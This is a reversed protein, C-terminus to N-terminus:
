AARRRRRSPSSSASSFLPTTEHTLEPFRLGFIFSAVCLADGAHDDPCPWHRDRCGQMIAKKIAKSGSPLFDGLMKSRAQQESIEECPLGADSVAMKVVGIMAGVSLVVDPAAKRSVFGRAVGVLDPKQERIIRAARDYIHRLVPGLDDIGSGRPVALSGSAPKMGAGLLGYGVTFGPDIGLIRM